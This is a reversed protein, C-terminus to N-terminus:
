LGLDNYIELYDNELWTQLEKFLAVNLEVGSQGECSTELLDMDPAAIDSEVQHNGESGNAYATGSITSADALSVQSQPLARVIFSLDQLVTLCDLGFNNGLRAEQEFVEIAFAVDETETSESQLSALQQLLMILAANFIAHAEQHTLRQRPSIHRILRGLRINERAAERCRSVFATYSDAQFSETRDKHSKQSLFRDALIKKTAAFFIPRTTLIIDKITNCPTM